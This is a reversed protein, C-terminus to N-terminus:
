ADRVPGDYEIFDSLRSTADRFSFHCVRYCWRLACTRNGIDVAKKSLWNWLGLGRLFLGLYAWIILAYTVPRSSPSGRVSIHNRSRAAM